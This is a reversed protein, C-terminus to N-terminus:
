VWRWCICKQGARPGEIVQGTGNCIKCRPDPSYKLEKRGKKQKVSDKSMWKDLNDIKNRVGICYVIDMFRGREPWDDQVFNDVAKKLDELTHDELRANIIRRREPTLKLSKGTKQNFYSLFFSIDRDKDKNIEKDEEKDKEKTKIQKQKKYREEIIIYDNGLLEKVIDVLEYDILEDRISLIAPKYSNLGKPYQFKLFKPIFFYDGKDIIRDKFIENFEEENITSNCCFNMLKFNKKWRGANTCTDILYLWIMRKENSLSLFWEDQWKQTDTFRKHAM